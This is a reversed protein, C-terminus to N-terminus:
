AARPPDALDLAHPGAPQNGGEQSLSHACSSSDSTSRLHLHSIASQVRLYPAWLEGSSCLHQVLASLSGVQAIHLLQLESPQAEWASNALLGFRLQSIDDSRLLLMLPAPRSTPVVVAATLCLAAAGARGGAQWSGACRLMAATQLGLRNAQKRCAVLLSRLAEPTFFQSTPLDKTPATEM